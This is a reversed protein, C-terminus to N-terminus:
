LSCNRCLAKRPTRAIRKETDMGGAWLNNHCLLWPLRQPSGAGCRKLALWLGYGDELYRRRQRDIWSAAEQRSLPNLYYRMVDPDALMTTVFDLDAVAMERLTLRSTELIPQM